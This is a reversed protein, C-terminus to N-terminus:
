ITFLLLSLSHTKNDGYLYSYITIIILLFSLDHTNYIGTCTAIYKMIIWMFYNTTPNTFDHSVYNIICHVIFQHLLLYSCAM